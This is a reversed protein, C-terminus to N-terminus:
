VEDEFVRSVLENIVSEYIQDLKVPKTLLGVVNKRMADDIELGDSYGTVFLVRVDPNIETMQRLVQLGSMEPMIVDLIVLDVSMWQHKYAELAKLPDTYALTGMSQDEFYGAIVQCIISEDDVVMVTAEEVEMGKEISASETINDTVYALPLYLKFLTGEGPQSMVDVGGHHDNVITFLNSLGVGSGHTKTSYYPEFVKMLEEESMGHGDDSVEIVTYYGAELTGTYTRCAHLKEETLILVSVHGTELGDLAETANMFLSTLAEKLLSADGEVMIETSITNVEISLNKDLSRNAMIVADKVMDYVNVTEPKIIHHKTISLIQKVTEAAEEGIDEITSLMTKVEEDDTMHSVCEVLGNIKMLQNNMDHAIGGSLRGLANIKDMHHMLLENRKLESIDYQAGIIYQAKGKEDRRIVKGRDYIWVWHGDKHRIRCEIHYYDVVDNLHDEMAKDFAHRDDPHIDEYRDEYHQTSFEELSYGFMEATRENFFMDGTELNWEWTGLNAAQVVNMYKELNEDIMTRAEVEHTIDYIYGNIQLIRDKHWIPVTYDRVWIYSGDRRRLRYRQEFSSRRDAFYQTTEAKIRPIDSPHIISSYYVLDDTMEEDTYGLLLKVNETVYVVPWSKEDLWVIAVINGANFLSTYDIYPKYFNREAQVKKNEKKKLYMMEDAKKFTELYDDGECYETIGYSFNPSFRRDAYKSSFRRKLLRNLDDLTKALEKETINDQILAVFEDGGQRAIIGHEVPTLFSLVRAFIRIYEDGAAHGFLENCVRLNDLDMMIIYTRHGPHFAFSELYDDFGLRNLAGTLADTKSSLEARDKENMLVKQSIYAERKRRTQVVSLAIAAIMAVTMVWIYQAYDVVTVGSMAMAVLFYIYTIVIPVALSLPDWFNWALILGVVVWMILVTSASQDTIFIRIFNYLVFSISLLSLIMPNDKFRYRILLLFIIYFLLNYLERDLYAESIFDTNSAVERMVNGVIFYLTELFVCVLLISRLVQQNNSIKMEHFTMNNLEAIDDMSEEGKMGKCGLATQMQLMSLHM